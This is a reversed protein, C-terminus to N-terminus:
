IVVPIDRRDFDSIKGRIMRTTGDSIGNISITLSSEARSSPGFTEILGQGIGLGSGITGLASVLPAAMPFFGGLFGLAGSIQNFKSSASNLREQEAAAARLGLALMKVSQEAKPMGVQSVVTLGRNLLATNETIGSFDLATTELEENYRRQTETATETTAGHNVVEQELEHLALAAENIALMQADVAARQEESRGIFAKVQLDYLKLSEWGLKIEAIWLRMGFVFANIKELGAVLAPMLQTALSDRINILEGALMRAKAAATNQTRDLDGIAVGARETVLQLSAAARAQNTLEKTSEAGSIAMARQDVETQKLVIGLRKLQEREGTLAAQIAMSTEVVPINNFSALDAALRTIEVAMDAAAAQSFGMGSAIQGSTAALAQMRETSLGALRAVGQLSEEVELAAPGFVTDFKSATEEVAAGVDLIQKAVFGGAAIGAFATAFGRLSIDATNISERLGALGQKTQKVGAQFNSTLLELNIEISGVKTAM